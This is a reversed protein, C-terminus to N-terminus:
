DWCRPPRGRASPCTPRWTERADWQGVWHLFVTGYTENLGQVAGSARRQARWRREGKRNGNSM